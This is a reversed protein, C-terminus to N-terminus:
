GEGRGDPPSDIMVVGFIGVIRAFDVSRWVAAYEAGDGVLHSRHAPVVASLALSPFSFVRYAVYTM